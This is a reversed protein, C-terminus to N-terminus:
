LTMNRTGNRFLRFIDFYIKLFNECANIPLRHAFRQSVAVTAYTKGILLCFLKQLLYYYIILCINKMLNAQIDTSMIQYRRRMRTHKCNDVSLQYLLEKFLLLKIPQLAM